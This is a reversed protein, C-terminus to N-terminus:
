IIKFLNCLIYFLGAVFSIMFTIGIIGMIMIGTWEAYYKFKDLREIM